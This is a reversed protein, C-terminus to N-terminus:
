LKNKNFVKILYYENDFDDVTLKSKVNCDGETYSVPPNGYNNNTRKFCNSKKVVVFIPNTDMTSQSVSLGCNFSITKTHSFDNGYDAYNGLYSGYDKWRVFEYGMTGILKLNGNLIQYVAIPPLSPDKSESSISIKAVIYVEGREAKRLSYESGHDDFNWQSATNVSNFKMTVDGIKLSTNEKIAKFGLTRKREEAEKKELEIKEIEAILTTAKKSEETGPFKEILENYEKKANSFDSESQFKQGNALRMQPSNSLEEVTKKCDTLEAELKDYDEQKPGQNSNCGTLVLIILMALYFNRMDRNKKLKNRLSESKAKPCNRHCDSNSLM